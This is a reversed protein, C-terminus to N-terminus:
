RMFLSSFPILHLLSFNQPESVEQNSNTNRNPINTRAQAEADKIAFALSYLSDRYIELRKLSQKKRQIERKNMEYFGNSPTNEEKARIINAELRSIEREVSSTEHKTTAEDPFRYSRCFFENSSNVRKCDINNDFIFQSVTKNDHFIAQSSTTSILFTFALLILTLIKNKSLM